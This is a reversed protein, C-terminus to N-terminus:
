KTRKTTQTVYPKRPNARGRRAGISDIELNRSEHNTFTASSLCHRKKIPIKCLGCLRSPFRYAAFLMINKIEM